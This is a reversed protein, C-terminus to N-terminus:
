IKYQMAQMKAVVTKTAIYEVGITSSKVTNQQKSYWANPARNVFISVGTQSRRTVCSSTHDADAFFQM